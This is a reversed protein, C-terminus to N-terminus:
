WGIRGGVKSKEPAKNGRASDRKGEQDDKKSWRRKTEKGRIEKRRTREWSVKSLCTREGFTKSKENRRTRLRAKKGKPLEGWVTHEERKKTKKENEASEWNKKPALARYGVIKKKAGGPTKM